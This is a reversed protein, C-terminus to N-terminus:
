DHKILQDYEEDSLPCFPHISPWYDMEDMQVKLKDCVHTWDDVNLDWQRHYPCENPCDIPFQRSM